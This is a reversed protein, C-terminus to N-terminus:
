LPASSTVNGPPSLLWPACAHPFPFPCGAPCQHCLVLHPRSPPLICPPRPSPAARRGLPCPSAFGPCCHPCHDPFVPALRNWRDPAFISPLLRFCRPLFFSYSSSCTRVVYLVYMCQSCTPDCATSGALRETPEQGLNEGGQVTITPLAGGAPFEESSLGVSHCSKRTPEQIAERARRCPPRGDDRGLHHYPWSSVTREEPALMKSLEIRVHQNRSLRALCTRATM